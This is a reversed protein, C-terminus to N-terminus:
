DGYGAGALGAVSVADGAFARSGSGEGSPFGLDKELWAWGGRFIFDSWHYEL